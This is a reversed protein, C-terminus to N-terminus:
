AVPLLSERGSRGSPRFPWAVPQRYPPERPARHRACVSWRPFPSRAREAQTQTKFEPLLEKYRAQGDESSLVLGERLVEQEALGEPNGGLLIDVGRGAMNTAVTVSGLRGAQVVIMAERTHQKANLVEHRIGRKTLLKSLVESKEVWVTGILIPQGKEHRGAIDDVVAAFKAEETKYILDGEDLRQSAQNTPIPVVDLGYTNKLEAAETSATGTMGALKKYMRFYNQLTITALTQNEEKIKM